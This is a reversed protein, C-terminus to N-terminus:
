RVSGLIPTSYSSSTSTTNSLNRSTHGASYASAQRPRAPLGRRVRPTGPETLEEYAACRAVPRAARAVVGALGHACREYDPAAFYPGANAAGRPWDGPPGAGWSM